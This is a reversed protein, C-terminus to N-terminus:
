SIQSIRVLVEHIYARNTYLVLTNDTVAIYIFFYQLMFVWHYLKTLNLLQEFTLSDYVTINQLYSSCPSLTNTYETHWM